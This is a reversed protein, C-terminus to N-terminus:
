GKTETGGLRSIGQSKRGRASKRVKSFLKKSDLFPSFVRIADAGVVNRNKLASPLSRIADLVGSFYSLLRRHKLGVLGHVLIIGITL